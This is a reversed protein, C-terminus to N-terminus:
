AADGGQPTITHSIPHAHNKKRQKIPIQRPPCRIDIKDLATEIQKRTDVITKASIPARHTDLLIYAMSDLDSAHGRAAKMAAWAAARIAPQEAFTNPNCVVYRAPQTVTDSISPINSTM